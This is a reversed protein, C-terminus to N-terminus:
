NSQRIGLLGYLRDFDVGEDMLRIGTEIKKKERLRLKRSMEEVQRTVAYTDGRVVLMPVGKMEATSIVIENPYLNGTLIICKSGAEIAALQIDSRDGGVIVANNRTKRIYELAKDVQMGGILFDEVLEDLRERCCLVDAGLFQAIDEIMVSGLVRDRPITGLIEIGKRQLFPVIHTKVKEQLAADINNIILGILRKGLRQKANLIADLFFEKEYQDVLIVKTDLRETVQFGSLDLFKGSTLTGSGSMLVLDKGASVREYAAMIREDLGKIDHQYAEVVLDQTILGPCLDEIPEKLEFSRYIVWADKDTLIGKVKVPFIGVPKFYGFKINDKLFRHGIGLVTLNKGSYGSTSGVYLSTMSSVKKQLRECNKWHVM